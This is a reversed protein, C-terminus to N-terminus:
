RRLPLLGRIPECHSRRFVPPLHQGSHENALINSIALGQPIGVSERFRTRERKPTGAPVTPRCIARRVLTLAPECVRAGVLEMLAWRPIRDYFAKIDGRLVVSRPLVEVLEKIERIYANPLVRNVSEPFVAHLYEKLLVLAVRDRITPLSIVRPPKSRGKSRLVERYPSFQYTGDSFGERVQDLYEAKRRAFSPMDVRDLGAAAGRRSVRKWASAVAALNTHDDFRTSHIHSLGVVISM